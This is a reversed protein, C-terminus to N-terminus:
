GQMRKLTKFVGEEMKKVRITPDSGMQELEEQSVKKGDVEVLQQKDSM